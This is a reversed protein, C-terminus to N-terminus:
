QRLIQDKPNRLKAGRNHFELEFPGKLNRLLALPRFNRGQTRAVIKVVAFKLEEKAVCGPLEEVM